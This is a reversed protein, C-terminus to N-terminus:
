LTRKFISIGQQYVAYVYALKLVSFVREMGFSWRNFHLQFLSETSLYLCIFARRNLAVEISTCFM